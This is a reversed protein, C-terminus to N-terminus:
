EQILHLCFQLRRAPSGSVGVTGVTEVVGCAGPRGSVSRCNQDNRSWCHAWGESKVWCLTRCDGMFECKRSGKSETVLQHCCGYGGRQIDKIGIM